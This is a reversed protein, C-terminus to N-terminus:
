YPCYTNEPVVPGPTKTQILLNKISGNLAPYDGGSAFVKIDNFDIPNLNEVYSGPVDRGAVGLTVLYKKPNARLLEQSIQITTWKDIPPLNAATTITFNNPKGPYLTVMMGYTAHFFVAVMTCNNDKGALFLSNAAPDASEVSYQKPYIEFTIRWEMGIRSITERGGVNPVVIDKKIAIEKGEATQLVTEFFDISFVPGYNGNPGSCMQNTDGVCRENCTSSPLAQIPAVDRCYCSDRSTVAFSYGKERCFDKCYTVSMHTNNRIGINGRPNTFAICQGDWVVCSGTEFSVAFLIMWM